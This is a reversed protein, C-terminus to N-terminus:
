FGEQRPKYISYNRFYSSCVKVLSNTDNMASGRFFSAQFISVESCLMITELVTQSMRDVLNHFAISNAPTSYMMMFPATCPTSYMTRVYEVGNNNKSKRYEHRQNSHTSEIIQNRPRGLREVPFMMRPNQRDGM